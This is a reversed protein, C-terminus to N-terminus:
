NMKKKVSFYYILAGLFHTLFIVIFWFLRDNNEKNPFTSTDRRICDVMMWIWFFSALAIGLALLLLLSLAIFYGTALATMDM